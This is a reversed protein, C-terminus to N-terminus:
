GSPEQVCRLAQEMYKKSWWFERTYFMCTHWGHWLPQKNCYSALVNFIIRIQMDSCQANSCWLYANPQRSEGDVQVLHCNRAVVARVAAQNEDILEGCPKCDV